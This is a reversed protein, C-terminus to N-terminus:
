IKACNKWYGNIISDSNNLVKIHLYGKGNKLGKKFFGKYFDGNAWTYIGEGEPLGNKFNGEYADIRISKGIGNALNKNCTGDYKGKITEMLVECSVANQGKINIHLLTIALAVLIIRM